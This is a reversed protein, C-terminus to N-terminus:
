FLRGVEAAFVLPDKASKRHNCSPCAIVLNDLTHTGGKSLPVYHDIHYRNRCNAGCWYCIKKQSQKWQFLEITSVGGVMWARRRHTYNDVIAKRKERNSRAWERTRELIRERNRKAYDRARIRIREINERYHRREYARREPSAIYEALCAVCSGRLTYRLGTHGKPCPRPSLYTVYGKEMAERRARSAMYRVSSERRRADAERRRAAQAQIQQISKYPRGSAAAKAVVRRQCDIRNCEVCVRTSVYRAAVHGRACPVGTFYTTEGASIAQIILSRIREREVVRAAYQPDKLKVELRRASIVDRNADRYIKQRALDASPNERYRKLAKDAACVVCNGNSILREAIHGRKCNGGTFYRKMGLSKAVQRPIIHVHKTIFDADAM